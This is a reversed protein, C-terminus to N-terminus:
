GTNYLISSVTKIGMRCAPRAMGVLVDLFSSLVDSTTNDLVVYNASEDGGVRSEEHICLLM